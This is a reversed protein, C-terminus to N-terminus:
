MDPSPLIIPVMPTTLRILELAAWFTPWTLPGCSIM